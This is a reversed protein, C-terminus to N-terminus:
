QLKREEGGEVHHIIEAYGPPKVRLENRIERIGLIREILDEAGFKMRRDPVTGDLIVIADKVHVIIESADVDPDRTLAECVDEHIRDDSRRYGKPGKGRHALNGGPYHKFGDSGEDAAARRDYDAQSRPAFEIGEYQRNRGWWQDDTMPRNENRENQRPM